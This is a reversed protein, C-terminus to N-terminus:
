PAHFMIYVIYPLGTMLAAYWAAGVGALVVTQLSHHRSFVLMVGTVLWLIMAFGTSVRTIIALAVDPAGYAYMFAALIGTHSAGLLVFWGTYNSRWSRSPGTLFAAKLRSSALFPSWLVSIVGGVLLGILAGAIFWYLM